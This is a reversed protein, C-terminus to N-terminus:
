LRAMTVPKSVIDAPASNNTGAAASGDNRRNRVANITSAAPMVMRCVEALGYTAIRPGGLVAELRSFRVCPNLERPVVSAGINPLQSIRPATAAGKLM